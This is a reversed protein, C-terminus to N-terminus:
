ISKSKKLLQMKESQFMEFFNGPYIYYAGENKEAFYKQLIEVQTGKGAGVVGFFLFVRRDSFSTKPTTSETNM